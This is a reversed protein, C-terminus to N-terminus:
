CQIWFKLVNFKTQLIFKMNEINLRLTYKPVRWHFKFMQENISFNMATTLVATNWPTMGQARYDAPNKIAKQVFKNETEVSTKIKWQPPQPPLWEPDEFKELLWLTM